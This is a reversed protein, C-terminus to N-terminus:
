VGASLRVFRDRRLSLCCADSGRRNAARLVHHMM